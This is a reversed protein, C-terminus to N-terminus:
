AEKRADSGGCDLGEERWGDPADNELREAGSVCGLALIEHRGEAFCALSPYDDDCDGLASSTGDGIGIFRAAREELRADNWTAVHRGLYAGM